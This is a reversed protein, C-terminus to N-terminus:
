SWRVMTERGRCTADEFGWGEDDLRRHHHRLGHCTERRFERSLSVMKRKKKQKTFFFVDDM